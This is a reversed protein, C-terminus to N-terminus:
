EERYVTFVIQVELHKIRVKKQVIQRMWVM